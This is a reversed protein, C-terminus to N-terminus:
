NSPLKLTRSAACFVQLTDCGSAEMVRIWGEARARAEQRGESGEPWGEYNAFPQLLMIQIRKTNCLSRVEKAAACLDEFDYPGVDKGAQTSAFSVLDPMGLELGQFGAEALAEIKRPLTHDDKCGISVSAFSTPITLLTALQLNSTM